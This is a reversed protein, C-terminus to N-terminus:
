VDLQAGEFGAPDGFSPDPSEDLTEAMVELPVEAVSLEGDAAVPPGLVITEDAAVAEEAEIVVDVEIEGPTESEFSAEPSVEAEAEPAPGDTEIRPTGAAYDAFADADFDPREDYTRDTDLAADDAIAPLEDDVLRADVESADITPPMSEDRRDIISARADWHGDWGGEGTSTWAMNFVIIYDPNEAFFDPMDTRYLVERHEPSNWWAAAVNGGDLTFYHPLEGGAQVEADALAGDHPHLTDGADAHRQVLDSWEELGITFQELPVLGLGNEARIENMRMWMARAQQDSIDDATLGAPRTIPEPEPEPEPEPDPDPDPQPDPDPDPDPQPDPDAPTAGGTAGGPNVGPGSPTPAAYGPETTAGGGSDNSVPATPTTPRDGGLPLPVIPGAPPNPAFTWSEILGDAFPTVQDDRELPPLNQQPGPNPTPNQQPITSPPTTPHSTDTPRQSETQTNSDQQAANEDPATTCAALALMMSAGAVVATARRFSAGPRASNPTM